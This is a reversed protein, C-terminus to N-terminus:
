SAQAAPSEPTTGGSRLLDEIRGAAEWVDAVVHDARATLTRATEHGYGTTVLFTTAHIARGLEIDAAKDGIVFASAPDFHHDRAAQLAMGPRPKRCTCVDADTHPCLYIGDLAVGGEALIAILRAHVAAVDAHGFYGRGIGSQNTVVVLGLGLRRLRLLAPVTRPLLELDRPHALYHREVNLTGDRDLLVFRRPHTM